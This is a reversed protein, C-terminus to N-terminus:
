PISLEPQKTGPEQLIGKERAAKITNIAQLNANDADTAKTGKNTIGNIHYQLENNSMSVYLKGRSDKFGCAFELDHDIVPKEPKSTGMMEDIAKDPDFDAPVEIKPDEMLFKVDEADVTDDSYNEPEPLHIRPFRKRLALKEARKKAREHRDFKEVAGGFNETSFVVGWSEAVPEPGILERAKDFADFFPVGANVFDTAIEKISDTWRKRSVSDHLVAKYAIDKSPDFTCEGPEAHQYTVWMNGGKWGMKEAEFDLQDQAKTRWGAVGPCPGVNPLYYCEGAFPNLGNASAYNALAYVETDSLKKGGVIMQKLQYAYERAKQIEPTTLKQPAQEQTVLATQESM